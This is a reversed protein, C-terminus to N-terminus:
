RLDKDSTYYTKGKMVFSYVRAWGWAQPSAGPRHGTKWAALGRNFITKLTKKPIGTSKSIKDFNGKDGPYKKHFKTTYTSPKTKMGVDTKFPEDDKKLMKRYRTEIDSKSRLGRFYKLPAYVKGLSKRLRSTEKKIESDKLM